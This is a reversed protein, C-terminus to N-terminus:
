EKKYVKKIFDSVFTENPRLDIGIKKAKAIAEDSATANLPLKRIYGKIGKLEARYERRDFVRFHETNTNSIKEKKSYIMVPLTNSDYETFYILEKREEETLDCTLNLYNQLVIREILMQMFAFELGSDFTYSSIKNKTDYYGTLYTNDTFKIKYLLFIVGIRTVEELYIEKIEGCNKVEVMIGKSPLLDQRNELRERLRVNDHESIFVRNVQVMKTLDRYPYPLMYQNDENIFFANMFVMNCALRDYHIINDFEERTKSTYGYKRAIKLFDNRTLMGTKALVHIDYNIETLNKGVEDTVLLGRKKSIGYAIKKSTGTLYSHQQVLLDFYALSIAENNKTALLIYSKYVLEFFIPYDNSDKLYKAIRMFFDHLNLKFEDPQLKLMLLQKEFERILYELKPNKTENPIYLGDILDDVSVNRLNHELLDVTAKTFYKLAKTPNFGVQKKKDKAM